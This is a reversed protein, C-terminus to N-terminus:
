KGRTPPYNPEAETTDADTRQSGTVSQPQFQQKGLLKKAEQDLRQRVRGNAIGTEPLIFEKQFELVANQTQPGYFQNRPLPPEPKMVLNLSGQLNTALDAALNQTEQNPTGDVRLKYDQQFQSIVRKAAQDQLTNGFDIDYGLGRLLERFEGPSYDRIRDALAVEQSFSSAAIGLVVVAITTRVRGWM